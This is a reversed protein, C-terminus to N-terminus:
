VRIIKQIEFHVKKREKSSISNTIYVPDDGTWNACVRIIEEGEDVKKRHSSM